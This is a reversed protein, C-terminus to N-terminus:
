KGSREDRVPALVVTAEFRLCGPETLDFREDGISEAWECRRVQDLLRRAREGLGSGTPAVPTALNLIRGHLRLGARGSKAIRRPTTELGEIWAAEDISLSRQLDALIRTWRDRRESLGRLQDYRRRLTEIEPVLAANRAAIRQLERGQSTLEAAGRIAIREVQAYHWLPPVLAVMPLIGLALRGPVRRASALRDRLREPLLGGTGSQENALRQLGAVVALEDGIDIWRSDSPLREVRGGLYESLRADLGPWRAAGGTLVIRGSARGGESLLGEIQGVEMVLAAALQEVQRDLHEGLNEDREESFILAEIEASSLKLAEALGTTVVQGGVPISREQFGGVGHVLLTTSRAGIDIVMAPGEPTVANWVATLARGAPFIGRLSLGARVAGEVLGEIVERKAVTFTLHWDPGTAFDGTCDWVMDELALPIAQMAEFHIVKDRQRPDVAPTMAHKTLVLHPALGLVAPGRYGLERTVAGIADIAAALWARDTEPVTGFRVSAQGLLRPRRSGRRYVAATVHSAGLDIACVRAFPWPFSLLRRPSSM